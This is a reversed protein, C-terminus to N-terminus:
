IRSELKKDLSQQLQKEPNSKYDVSEIRDHPNLVPLVLCIVWRDNEILMRIEQLIRGRRKKPPPPSVEKEDM